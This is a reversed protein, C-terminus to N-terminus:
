LRGIMGMGGSSTKEGIGASYAIEHLAKPAMLEFDFFYGKVQTYEPMYEKIHVMSHKPKKSLLKFKIEPNEPLKEQILQNQFAAQYKNILNNNLLKEYGSDKPSIYQAQKKAPDNKSLCIPTICKYPMTEQFAIEPLIEINQVEFRITKFKKNGLEMIQKKFLGMVFNQLAKDFLFSVELNVEKGNLQFCKTENNPKFPSQLNLRSFTFFKFKKNEAISFGKEHLLTAFKPNARYFVKYIWSSILYQYNYPLIIKPTHSFTIKLRMIKLKTISEAEFIVILRM